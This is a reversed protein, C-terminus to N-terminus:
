FWCKDHLILGCVCVTISNSKKRCISGISIIYNAIHRSNDIPINITRCLIVINEVPSSIPLYITQRLVNEFVVRAIGLNTLRM